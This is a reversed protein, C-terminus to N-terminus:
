KQSRLKDFFSRDDESLYLAFKGPDMMRAMRYFYIKSRIFDRAIEIQVLSSSLSAHAADLDGMLSTKGDAVVVIRGKPINEDEFSEPLNYSYIETGPITIDRYSFGTIKVGGGAKKSFVDKLLVACRSDNFYFLINKQAKSSLAQVEAMIVDFEDLNWFFERDSQQMAHLESALENKALNFRNELVSLFTEPAIPSYLDKQGKVMRVGGREALRNLMEYAIPRLINHEKALQYGTIPIPYTLLALYVLGENRSLGLAEFRDLLLSRSDQM